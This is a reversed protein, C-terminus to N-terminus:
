DTRLKLKQGPVHEAIRARDDDSIRIFEVGMYYPLEGAEPRHYAVKGYALIAVFRPLLVLEIELLTDTPIPAAGYFGVGGASLSVPSLPAEQTNIDWLMLSRALLNIKEDLLQLYTAVGPTDKGIAHLVSAHRKTMEALTTSLRLRSASHLPENERPVDKASVVRYRLFVHADSRAFRRREQPSANTMM